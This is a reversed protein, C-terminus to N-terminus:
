LFALLVTLLMVVCAYVDHRLTVEQLLVNATMTFAEVVILSQSLALGTLRVLRAAYCLRHVAALGLQEVLLPVALLDGHALQELGVVLALDLSRRLSPRIM